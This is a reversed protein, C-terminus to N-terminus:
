AWARADLSKPTAKGRPSASVTPPPRGGHISPLSVTGGEPRSMHGRLRRQQPSLFERETDGSRNLNSELETAFSRFMGQVKALQARKSEVKGQQYRLIQEMKTHLRWNCFINLTLMRNIHHAAREMATGANAKHWGNFDLLKSNANRLAQAMENSKKEEQVLQVWAQMSSQLLGSDSSRVMRELVSKTGAKKKEVLKDITLKAQQVRVDLEKEKQLQSRISMWAQLCMQALSTGVSAGMRQLMSKASASKEETLQQLKAELEELQMRTDGGARAAAREQKFAAFCEAMLMRDNDRAKAIMLANASGTQQLQAEVYRQEASEIQERYEEYIANEVKAHRTEQTWSLFITRVLMKISGSTFGVLAKKARAGCQAQYGALTARAAALKKQAQLKDEQGRLLKSMRCQAESMWLSHGQKLSAVENGAQVVAMRLIHQEVGTSVADNLAGQVTPASGARLGERVRTATSVVMQLQLFFNQFQEKSQAPMKSVLVEIMYQEDLAGLAEQEQQSLAVGHQEMLKIAAHLSQCRDWKGRLVDALKTYHKPELLNNVLYDVSADMNSNAQVM